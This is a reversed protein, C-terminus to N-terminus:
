VNGDSPLEDDMNGYDADDKAMPASAAGSSVPASKAGVLIDKASNYIDEIKPLIISAELLIRMADCFPHLAEDTYLPQGKEQAAEAKYAFWRWTKDQTSTKAESTLSYWKSWLSVDRSAARLLRRGAPESTKTFRVLVVDRLDKTLMYVGVDDSCKQKQGDRWPRHPCNACDGYASGVVRNMSQCIPLGSGDGGDRDAWYTRGQWGALVAGRFEAGINERTNLYFHGPIMNDPRNPDNGGGHFLKMEPLDPRNNESYIGAKKGSIKKLISSVNDAIDEPLSDILRQLQAPTPIEKDVREIDKSYKDLFPKNGEGLHALMSPGAAPQPVIAEKTEPTEVTETETENNKDKKGM